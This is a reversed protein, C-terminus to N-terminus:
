EESLYSSVSEPTAQMTQAGMSWNAPCVADGHEEVFNIADIM